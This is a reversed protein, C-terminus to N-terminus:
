SIDFMQKPERQKKEYKKAKIVISAINNPGIDMFILNNIIDGELQM